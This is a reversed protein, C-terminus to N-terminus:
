ELRARRAGLTAIAELALLDPCRARHVRIQHQHERAGRREVFHLILNVANRGEDDIDPLRQPFAQLYAWNLGHDIVMRGFDKEIVQINRGVTQDPLLALAESVDEVAHVRLTYEGSGLGDARRVPEYAFGCGICDLTLHESTRYSLILCDLKRNGLRVDLAL